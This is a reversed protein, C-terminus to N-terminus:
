SVRRQQQQVPVNSQSQQQQQLQQPHGFPPRIPSTGRMPSPRMQQQSQMGINPNLISNGAASISGNGAHMDGSGGNVAFSQNGSSGNFHMQQQPGPPITPVRGNMMNNNIHHHPPPTSGMATQSMGPPPPRKKIKVAAVVALVAILHHSSHPHRNCILREYGIRSFGPCSGPDAGEEGAGRVRTHRVGKGPGARSERKVTLIGARVSELSVPRLPEDIVLILIVTVTVDQLHM